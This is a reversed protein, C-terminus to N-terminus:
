LAHFNIEPYKWNVQKHDLLIAYNLGVDQFPSCCVAVGAAWPVPKWDDVRKRACTIDSSSCRIWTIIWGWGKVACRIKVTSGSYGVDGWSYLIEKVLFIFYHLCVLYWLAMGKFFLVFGWVCVGFFLCVCVLVSSGCYKIREEEKKKKILFFNWVVWTLLCILVFLDKQDFHARELSQSESM